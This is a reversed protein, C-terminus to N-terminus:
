RKTKKVRGPLKTTIPPSIASDDGTETAPAEQSAAETTQPATGNGDEADIEACAQAWHAQERGEPRGEQEWLAHARQRIREERDNM